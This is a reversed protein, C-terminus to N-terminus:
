LEVNEDVKICVIIQPYTKLNPLILSSCSENRGLMVGVNHPSPM